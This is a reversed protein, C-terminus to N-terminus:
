QAKEFFWSKEDAYDNLDLQTVFFKNNKETLYVMNSANPVNIFFYPKGLYNYTRFDLRFYSSGNISIFKNSKCNKIKVASNDLFIIQYKQSNSNDFEDTLIYGNEVRTLYKKNSYDKIYWEVDDISINLKLTESKKNAVDYKNFMSNQLNKNEPLEYGLIPVVVNNNDIACIRERAGAESDNVDNKTIDYFATTYIFFHIDNSLALSIDYSIPTYTLHIDEDSYWHSLELLGIIQKKYMVISFIRVKENESLLLVDDGDYFIPVYFLNGISIENVGSQFPIINEYCEKIVDNISKKGIDSQIYSIAETKSIIELGSEEVSNVAYVNFTNLNFLVIAILILNCIQFKM